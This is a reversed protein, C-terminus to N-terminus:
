SKKVEPGGCSRGPSHTKQFWAPPNFDYAERLTLARIRKKSFKEIFEEQTLVIPTATDELIFNLHDSPYAPDLPVCVGGAKLIGLITIILEPSHPM